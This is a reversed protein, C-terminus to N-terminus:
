INWDYNFAFTYRNVNKNYLEQVKHKFLPNSNNIIIMKRNHPMVERTYFTENNVEKRLTISGGWEDEWIEDTFYCLVLIDSGDIFDQHFDGDEAGNWLHIYKTKLYPRFVKFIDFVPLNTIKASLDRFADPVNSMIKRNAYKEFEQHSDIKHIDIRNINEVYWDPVEKFISKSKLWNTSYIQAWFEPAFDYPIESLIYGREFFEFEFQELTEM